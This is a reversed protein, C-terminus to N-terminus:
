NFTAHASAISNSADNINFIPKVLDAKLMVLVAKQPKRDGVHVIM